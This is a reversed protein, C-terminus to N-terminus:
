VTESALQPSFGPHKSIQLTTADYAFKSPLLTLSNAHQELNKVAMQYVPSKTYDGPSSLLKFKIIQHTLRAYELIQDYSMGMARYYGMDFSTMDGGSWIPGKVTSDIVFRNCLENATSYNMTPHDWDFLDGKLGYSEADRGVPAGKLLIFSQARALHFGSNQITHITSLASEETEGPFGFVLFATTLIDRKNFKMVADEVYEWTLKKNMNKLVLPDTSEVGIYVSKCGSEKMLDYLEDEFITSCRFFSYWEFDFQNKIMMRCIEKLRKASLNFTDDVFSIYKVGKEWLQTLEKEITKVSVLDVGNNRFHYDCFSCQFPCGRSTRITVTKGVDAKDFNTWDVAYKDLNTNEAKKGTYTYSHTLPNRIYLNYVDSIEKNEKLNFITQALASEGQGEYIYLDAGITEMVYRCEDEDLHCLTWVFPGGIVIRTNPQKERIYNTIEHLTEWNLVFTTTVAVVLPDCALLEDLKTREHRLSNVFDCALGKKKLFSTLYVVSPNPTECITYESLYQPNGKNLFYNLSDSTNFEKGGLSFVDREWFSLLGSLLAEQKNNNISEIQDSMIENAGLVICDIRKSSGM